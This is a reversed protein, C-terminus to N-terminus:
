VLVAEAAIRQSLGSKLTEPMVLDVKVGLEDSLTNELEVFTLLGPTKTFTVLVDLDSSNNQHGSAYSGFLALSAVQYRPILAPLLDKLQARFTQAAKM